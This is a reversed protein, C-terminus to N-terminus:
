LGEVALALTPALPLRPLLTAQYAHYLDAKLHGEVPDPGLEGNLEQLWSGREDDVYVDRMFDWVRRYWAEFRAEGTRDALAAAAAAAEAHTWHRRRTSSPEGNWDVTYLMGPRDDGEWGETMAKDFLHVADDVLWDPAEAGLGAELHLLLRAWECGHGPTAGFPKFGDDPKDANYDPLIQWRGDFHEVVRWDHNSAVGHILREVIALARRRWAHDDLVDALELCMETAHMNANAGRYDALESWDRSWSEVYAQEDASWFYRDLVALADDLLERAGEIGARTASAAGLVVFVQIYCQKSDDFGDHPATAFWGDHEPDRLLGTLAVVGHHALTSAGPVGQLTALAYCHTMRATILTDAISSALERNVDLAGFGGDALCSARYFELLDLGEAALWHRHTERHIWRGTLGTTPMDTVAM